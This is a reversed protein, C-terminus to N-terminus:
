TPRVDLRKEHRGEDDTWAIWVDLEDPELKKQVEVRGREAPEFPVLVLDRSAMYSSVKRAGGRDTLWLQVGRAPVAGLNRVDFHFDRPPPQDGRGTGGKAEVIIRARRSASEARTARQDARRTFYLSGLSIGVAILSAILAAWAV